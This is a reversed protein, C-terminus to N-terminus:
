LSHLTMRKKTQQQVRGEPCSPNESRQRKPRRRRPCPGLPRRPGGGPGKCGRGGAHAVFAARSKSRSSGESREPSRGGRRAIAMPPQAGLLFKTRERFNVRPSKPARRAARALGTPRRTLASRRVAPAPPQLPGPSLRERGGAACAAWVGPPTFVSHGCPLLFRRRHSLGVLAQECLCLIFM